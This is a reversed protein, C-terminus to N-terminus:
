TRIRGGMGYMCMYQICMYVWPALELDKHSMPNPNRTPPRVSWPADTHCTYGFGKGVIGLGQCVQTQGGEM